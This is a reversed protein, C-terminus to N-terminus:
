RFSQRLLISETNTSFRKRHWRGNAGADGIHLSRYSYVAGHLSDIM